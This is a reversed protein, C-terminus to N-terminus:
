EEEEHVKRVSIDGTSLIHKEGTDTRVALFGQETIDFATGEVSLGGGEVRVRAGLVCSYSRLIPIFPLPGQEIILRYNRELHNLIEALLSERSYERGGTMRLSLAIDRVEEPFAVHNVNLGMGLIVCSKGERYEINEALIGGLKMDNFYIDNPWKIRAAIGTNERIAQVISIAALSTIFSMHEPPILPKLFVSVLISCGKEGTWTRGLRGKGGTQEEATVALGHAASDAVLRLYNNTSDVTDLCLMERGITETTLFSQVTEKIVRTKGLTDIEPISATSDIKKLPIKGQFHLNM